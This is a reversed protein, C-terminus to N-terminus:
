ENVEESIENSEGLHSRITSEGGLLRIRDKLDAASEQAIAPIGFSFGAMVLACCTLKNQIIM